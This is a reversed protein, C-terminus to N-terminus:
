CLDGKDIIFDVVRKSNKGDKSYNAYKCIEERAKKLDDKGSSVNDVFNILDDINYIKYAGKMYHEVDICFGPNKKYEEIDEWAAGIPKDCLLYDFYISSYDTILADCNGVFQYSSIKNKTFFDDNIFTINSLDYKTIYSIDQAFHPKIVILINKEKAFDNLKIAKKHDDLIPITSTTTNKYGNKHQRFTPYWVIIKKYKTTFIKQLDFKFNTLDDNRPFGLGHFTKIDADFVKAMSPISPTSAVLNYDIKSPIRYNVVNKLATGHTLYFSTQGKIHSELFQNCCVLVKARNIYKNYEKINKKDIYITNEYKPFEKNKDSVWWIFTYKKNLKRKIMEDFVAKTNDSLDPVSEFVIWNKKPLLGYYTRKIKDYIRKIM